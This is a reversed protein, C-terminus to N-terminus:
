SQWSQNWVYIRFLSEPLEPVDVRTYYCQHFSPADSIKNAAPDFVVEVPEKRYPVLVWRQDTTVTTAMGDQPGGFLLATKLELM